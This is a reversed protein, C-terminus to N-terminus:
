QINDIKGKLELEAYNLFLYDAKTTIEISYTREFSSSNDFDFITIAIVQDNFMYVRKVTQKDYVIYSSDKPIKLLAIEQLIDKPDKGKYTIEISQRFPRSWYKDIGLALSHFLLEKPLRITFDNAALSKESNNLTPYYILYLPTESTYTKLLNMDFNEKKTLFSKPKIQRLSDLINKIRFDWLASDAIGVTVTRSLTWSNSDLFDQISILREKQLILLKKLSIHQAYTFLPALAILFVYFKKM